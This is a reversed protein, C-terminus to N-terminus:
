LGVEKRFSQYKAEEVEALRNLEEQHEKSLEDWWNCLARSSFDDNVESRPKGEYHRVLEWLATYIEDKVGELCEAVEDPRWVSFLGNPEIKTRTNM